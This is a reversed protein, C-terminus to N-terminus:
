SLNFSRIRVILYFLIVSVCQLVVTRPVWLSAPVAVRPYTGQRMQILSSALALLIYLTLTYTRSLFWGTALFGYLAVRVVSACQRFRSDESTQVPMRTLIELGWVCTVILALWFFYGFMGLEAFCLVFSNHATLDSYDTFQGFGVGFLPHSKLQAIGAGWAIVRGGASNEVLSIERGGGFQLAIMIGLVVGTIAVARRRGVM